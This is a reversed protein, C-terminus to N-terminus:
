SVSVNCASLLLRRLTRQQRSPTCELEDRSVEVICDGDSTERSWESGGIRLRGEGFSLYLRLQDTKNLNPVFFPGPKCPTQQHDVTM